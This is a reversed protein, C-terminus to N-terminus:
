DWHRPQSVRAVDDRMSRVQLVIVLLMALIMIPFLRSLARNAKGSEEVPGGIEIRYGDPLRRDRRRALAFVALEVDPPQTGDAIDARVEVTTKATADSSSPDEM